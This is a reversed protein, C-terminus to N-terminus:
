SPMREPSPHHGPAALLERYLRELADAAATWAYRNVAVDRASSGLRGALAPDDLLRVVADAFRQADDALLIDREPVVDIGEAGLSTSVIAKQMAMGEVIKLRTGGGLRLPVAIAAASALHPRLDEVFGVIEVDPRALDLLSKPAGKGIIKCRADPRRAVVRPWIERLFWSAGDINPLTSLLGFFVVTRGDAPPDSPRPRYFEVDAANPIVVTRASPVEALIRQQDAASCACVADAARFASLEEHRLKRWNLGAYLTRGLGLGQRAFQRVMDYAIEHADIVQVPTNAKSAGSAPRDFRFHALYPFELNIVDFRRRSLVDDLAHQLAPVSCRHREFSRLSALSRLQLARKIAGNRGYPNPVLVVERCYAEMARRCDDADFDADLLCVATLDHARSLSTMLGHMRAQAGFRPPSPPMPSVYLISLRDVPM